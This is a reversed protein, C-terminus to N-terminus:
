LQKAYFFVEKASERVVVPSLRVIVSVSYRYIIKQHLPIRYTCRPFNGEDQWCSGTQRASSACVDVRCTQKIKLATLAGSAIVTDHITRFTFPSILFFRFFPSFWVSCTGPFRLRTSVIRGFLKKSSLIHFFNVYNRHKSIYVKQFCQNIICCTRKFCTSWPFRIDSLWSSEVPVM